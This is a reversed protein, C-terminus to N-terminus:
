VVTVLVRRDRLAARGVAQSFRAFDFEPSCCARLAAGFLLIGNEYASSHLKGASQAAPRHVHKTDGYSILIAKFCFL